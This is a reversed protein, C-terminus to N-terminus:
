GCPSWCCRRPSGSAARLQAAPRRRLDLGGDAGHDGPLHEQPGLPRGAPRVRHGRVAPGRLGAAFALLALIYGTTENVGSFFHRTIFTALSGYLYFDYWEFVTGVSSAGIVLATAALPAPAAPRYNRAGRGGRRNREAAGERACLPAAPRTSIWRGVFLRALPRAHEQM